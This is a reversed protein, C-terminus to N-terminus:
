QAESSSRQSLLLAIAPQVRNTIEAEAWARDAGSIIWAAIQCAAPRGRGVKVREDIQDGRRDFGVGPLLVAGAFPLDHLEGDVAHVDVGRAGQADSLGLSLTQRGDSIAADASL